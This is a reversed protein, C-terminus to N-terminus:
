RTSAARAEGGGAKPKPELLFLLVLLTVGVCIASDAINFNPWVHQKGGWELFWKVFDRVYGHGARDWLNGFAGGWLLGLAGSFVLRHPGPGRLHSWLFWVIAALAIASLASLFGIRGSFWGSFAGTNVSPEIEFFGPIVPYPPDSRISPREGDAAPFVEVHFTRFVIAKTWLDSVSVAVALAAFLIWHLLHRRAGPPSPPGPPPGGEPAPRSM